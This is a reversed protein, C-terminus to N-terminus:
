PRGRMIRRLTLRAWVQNFWRRPANLRGAPIGPGFVGLLARENSRERVLWGPPVPDREAASLGQDPVLYAHQRRILIPM